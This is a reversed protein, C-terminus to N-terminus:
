AAEEAVYYDRLNEIKVKRLSGDGDILADVILAGVVPEKIKRQLFRTRWQMGPVQIGQVNRIFMECSQHFHGMLLLHPKDGGPIAEIAKQLNYSAAYAGGGGPHFMRVRVGPGLTVDALEHGLYEIDDRPPLQCLPETSGNALLHMLDRGTADFEWLDHNGAILHTKIGKRKPYHEHCYRLSGRWDMCGELTEWQHGRYGREGPGDGLDGCHLVNEIGEAAFHDYTSHLFDYACKTSHLHTDAVVGIHLVQGSFDIRKHRPPMARPLTIVEGEGTEVNAVAYGKDRLGQLAARINSPGRDFKDCLGEISHMGDRDRQLLRLLGDELDSQASAVREAFRQPNGNHRTFLERVARDKGVAGVAAAMLVSSGYHEKMIRLSEPDTDRLRRLYAIGDGSAKAANAVEAAIVDPTRKDAM